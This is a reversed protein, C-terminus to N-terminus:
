FFSPRAEGETIDFGLHRRLERVFREWDYNHYGAEPLVLSGIGLAPHFVLELAGKPQTIRRYRGAVIYTMTEDISMLERLPYTKLTIRHTETQDSVDELELRAKLLHTNTLAWIERVTLQGSRNTHLFAAGLKTCRGFAWNIYESFLRFRSFGSQSIFNEMTVPFSNKGVMIDGGGISNWIKGCGQM